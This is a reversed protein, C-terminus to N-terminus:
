VLKKKRPEKPVYPLLPLECVYMENNIGLNIGSIFSIFSSPVCLLFFSDLHMSLAVCPNEFFIFCLLYTEIQEAIIENYSATSVCVGMCYCCANSKQHCM